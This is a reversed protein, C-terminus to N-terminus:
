RGIEEVDETAHRQQRELQGVGIGGAHGRRQVAQELGARRDHDDPHDITPLQGGAEGHARRIDQERCASLLDCPGAGALSRGTRDLHVVDVSRQRAEGALHPCVWEGRDGKGTQQPQGRPQRGKVPQDGLRQRIRRQQGPRLEGRPERTAARHAVAVAGLRHPDTPDATLQAERQIPRLDAVGVVGRGAVREDGRQPRRPGVPTDGLDDQVCGPRREAAATVQTLETRCRIGRGRVGDPDAGTCRSLDDPKGAPDRCVDVPRAHARAHLQGGKGVM